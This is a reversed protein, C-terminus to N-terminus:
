YIESWLITGGVNTTSTTMNKVTLVYIESDTSDYNQAIFNQKNVVGTRSTATPAAQNINLSNAGVFGSLLIKGDSYATASTNYEVVSDSDASVWASATTLMSGSPLKTLTYRVSQQDTFVSAELVRVFGRNPLGNVEKKLRIALVPLTSGSTLSRFTDNSISFARGAEVYGGESIVTACVQEMSGTQPPSGVNIIECRVPLNPDSMYVVDTKNSHDFVHCLYIEGNVVLGCRVRGIGLWQFDISILQSKTIDIIIPDADLRNVNWNAQSVRNEQISGTGNASSRIVWNLSGTADQEFFIGNYDDFYGTRKIVGPQAAGFVVSSLIAQSKGPMYNHYMKTQHVARSGSTAPVSLTVSARHKNFTNTSGSVLKDTFNFDVAYLHKYDGLTYPIAVKNRGFADSIGAQSNLRSRFLANRGYIDVVDWGSKGFFDLKADTDHIEGPLPELHYFGAALTKLEDILVPDNPSPM